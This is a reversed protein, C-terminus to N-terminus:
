AHYKPNFSLPFFMRRVPKNAIFSEPPGQWQSPHAPLMAKHCWRHGDSCWSGISLMTFWLHNVICMQVPAWIEQVKTYIHRMRNHMAVYASQSNEQLFGGVKFHQMVTAIAFLRMAITPSLHALTKLTRYLGVSSLSFVELSQALAPRQTRNCPQEWPVMIGYRLRVYMLSLQAAFM